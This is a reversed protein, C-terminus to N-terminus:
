EYYTSAHVEPIVLVADYSWILKELGNDLNKIKGYFLLERVTRLDIVTWDKEESVSFIPSFNIKDLYKSADYPKNKEKEDVFPNYANQTGKVGVVYLHFSSSKEMSALESVFNGIDFANLGNAGRYIHNAGFKFLVKPLTNNKAKAQQYYDLFHSKMLEARQVNSAFGQQSFFKLYISQSVILEDIINIAEVNGQFASKIKEFDAPKLNYMLISTPNKTKITEEFGKQAKALYTEVLTKAEPNPAIEILKKFLLRPAGIFEQDLGWIRPEDDKRLKMMAKLIEVEEQYFYFPVAWPITQNLKAFQQDANKSKAMKQLYSATIPGTETAFYGYGGATNALANVMFTTFLPLEALGHDEGILFFQSNKAANILFEKGAGKWTNEDVQITTKAQHFQAILLSDQAVLRNTLMATLLLLFMRKKM